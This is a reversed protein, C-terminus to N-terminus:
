RQRRAEHNVVLHLVYIGPVVDAPVRLEWVNSTWPEALIPISRGQVDILYFEETDVLAPEVAYIRLPRYTSTLRYISISDVPLSPEEVIPIDGSCIGIRQTIRERMSELQDYTHQGPCETACGDRHGAIVGLNSNFRHSNTGMPDMEDKYAKWALLRELTGLMTDTPSLNTYDGLLCVGMTGTNGGCFHAGIVRDQDGNEPDRGLYLDGNQSILYNYGVDSWGRTQTHFVYIDRVVQTFNTNTNSGASHHVILNGVNSFSRGPSPAPLGARWESQSIAPPFECYSEDEGKQQPSQVKPATGSNVLILELSGAYSTPIHLQYSQSPHPLSELNSLQGRPDEGHPNAEIILEDTGDTLYMGEFSAGHPIRMAVATYQWDQPLDVQAKKGMGQLSYTRTWPNTALPEKAVFDQGLSCVSVLTLLASIRLTHAPLM